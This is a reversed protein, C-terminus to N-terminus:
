RRGLGPRGPPDPTGTHPAPGLGSHVTLSAPATRAPRNRSEAPPAPSPGTAREAAPNIRAATQPHSVVDGTGDDAGEGSIARTGNRRMSGHTRCSSGTSCIRGPRCPPGASRTLAREQRGALGVTWSPWGNGFGPNLCEWRAAPWKMLKVRIGDPQVAVQLVPRSRGNQSRRQSVHDALRLGDQEILVFPDSLRPPLWNRTQHGSPRGSPWGPMSSIRTSASSLRSARASAAARSATRSAGLWDNKVRQEATRPGPRHCRPRYWSPIHQFM